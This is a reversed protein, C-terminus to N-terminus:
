ARDESESRGEAVLAALASAALARTVGSGAALAARDLVGVAEVVAGPTRPLRRHIWAQVQASVEIQRESLLRALLTALFPDDAPGIEVSTTARLRSALDPLGTEFRAPPTKATMLVPRGAEAAANLLHLLVSPEPARDVDDLALATEPWRSQRLAAADVVQAREREAWIQLLHTKGAGAPGWLALRGQPWEATVALFALAARCGANPLLDWDRFQPRHPFALPLQRGESM